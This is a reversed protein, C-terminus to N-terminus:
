FLRLQEISRGRVRNRCPHGLAMICQKNTFGILGRKSRHGCIGFTLFYRCEIHRIM